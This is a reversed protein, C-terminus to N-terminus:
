FLSPAEKKEIRLLLQTLKVLEESNYVIKANLSKNSNLM